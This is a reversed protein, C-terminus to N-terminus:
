KAFCRCREIIRQFLKGDSSCFLEEGLVNLAARFDCRQIQAGHVRERMMCFHVCVRVCLFTARILM